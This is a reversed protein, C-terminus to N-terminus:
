DKVKSPPTYFEKLYFPEFYAVDEFSKEQYKKHAIHVMNAASPLLDLDFVAKKDKIIKQFKPAGDGFFLIEHEELLLQFSQENLILAQTPTVILGKENFLACYVEMRRADLMPCFMKYNSYKKIAGEAMSALTNVGILPINLGYCMGKATAVGIRLGTYSGPGKSVAIADIDQYSKGALQMLEEIFLTLHEAHTFGNNEEKLYLLQGEYALAVSCVTTATEVHLILSM